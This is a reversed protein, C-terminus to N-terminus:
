ERIAEVVSEKKRLAYVARPVVFGLALLVPCALAAPLLTFQYKVFWLGEGISRLATVSFLSAALVSFGMTLAAYDVGEAVLMWSLQRKTMGIAEMMAFERKRVAVGTLMVNIFNLIGILGIMGALGLGVAAIMGLIGDFSKAYVERSEYAMAPEEETTYQELFTELKEEQGEKVDFLYSMLYADSFMSRFEDASVYFAFTGTMRNTLSFTHGKVVSIIEYEKVAGDGYQLTVKDKAHYKVSDEIVRNDDDVDVSYLLYRGTQLKEWIVDADTEGETVTMKDLVFREIGHWDTNYAGEEYGEFAIFGEESRPEYIGPAGNENTTIYDPIEWTEVPIDPGNSTMYIRGGALFEERKECAAVFSESLSAELATEEDYPHYNYNWLSANGIVADSLIMKSLFSDREISSTITYISNMLVVTLSLSIVVIVTRGKNRGLNSFAMRVLKGGDTSKKLRKRRNGNETYHLAEVPSVRAAIRGPKWESLLVTILTFITAGIFIWPGPGTKTYEQHNLNGVSCVIPLLLKGALFGLALGAPTGILCLWVAQRRLIRKIQRATTGITKLLGYYRIDYIVSIQFINYIILYGTLMILFLAAAIGAVTMPDGKAGGSFYAWNANCSIYDSSAEDVSFGSDTIIRELQGQIDSASGLMIDMNIRGANGYDDASREMLEKEYVKLYEESVIAYGVNMGESPRIVGSVRFTRRVPKSGYHVQLALTVECGAKPKLGLLEMSQADMLIEDAEKPATGDTLEFFWHPYLNPEVFHLEVHRKLFEPNQVEDAAVIDRGCETILKHEKLIEYQEKTVDKIVGHMDSGSQLMTGRQADEIIGIGVTFVATFLVSTLVIAAVAIFNRTRNALFSKKALRKIAENNKVKRM